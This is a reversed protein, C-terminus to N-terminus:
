SQLGLKARKNLNVIFNKKKCLYFRSENGAALSKETPREYEPRLFCCFVTFAGILAEVTETRSCADNKNEGINATL